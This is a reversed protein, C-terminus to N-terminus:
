SQINYSGMGYLQDDLSLFLLVVGQQPSYPCIWVQGNGCGWRKMEWESGREMIICDLKGMGM